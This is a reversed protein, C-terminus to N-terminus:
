CWVCFNVGQVTDYFYLIKIARLGCGIANFIYCVISYSFSMLFYFGQNVCVSM